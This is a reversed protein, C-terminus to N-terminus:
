RPFPIRLELQTGPNANEIRLTAGLAEARTRMNQIGRGSSATRPPLGCGFDRIAVCLGEEGEDCSTVRVTVREARAHRLANTVAEQVIRLIHLTQEPPFTGIGPVDDVTWALEVGNRRLLPTLRARLKGLSTPLDTTNSDISDIVISVDDLARRLAEAVESRSSLGREVMSLASVLQGGLGDHMERTLRERELLLLKEKESRLRQAEGARYRRDSANRQEIVAAMTFATLGIFMSYTWLLVIAETSSGMVFPGLDSATAATAIMIIIFSALTAGRPGLRSGAWVLIPFPSVLGAFGMLGPYFGSFAVSTTVLLLTLATWWEVRRFLSRWTPAGRALMLLTPTLILAGGVDGLWWIMWVLGFNGSEVAGSAFLTSVGITASVTTCGLVGLILFSAVDQLRELNPRFGAVRVLLTSGVLAELTNGTAVGLSPLWGLQSDLANLLLAGVFVGPWLRRGFLILAALSLGTPPWVLTANEHYNAFELGHHGAAAYLAALLSVQGLWRITWVRGGSIASDV